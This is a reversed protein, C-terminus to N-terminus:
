RAIELLNYIKSSWVNRISVLPGLCGSSHALTFISSPLISPSTWVSNNTLRYSWLPALPVICRRFCIWCHSHKMVGDLCLTRTCIVTKYYQCCTCTLLSTTLISCGIWFLCKPTREWSEFISASSIVDYYIESFSVELQLSSEIIERLSNNAAQHAALCQINDLVKWSTMVNNLHGFLGHVSGSRSPHWIMGGPSLNLSHYWPSSSLCQKLCAFM